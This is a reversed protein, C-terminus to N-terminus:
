VLFSRRDALRKPKGNTPQNSVEVGFDGFEFFLEASSVSYDETLFGSFDIMRKEGAGAFNNVLLGSYFEFFFRAPQVYDGVVFGAATARGWRCDDGGAYEFVTDIVGFDVAGVAVTASFYESELELILGFEDPRCVFVELVSDEFVDALFAISVYDLSFLRILWNIFSSRTWTQKSLNCCILGTM